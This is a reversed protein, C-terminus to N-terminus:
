QRTEPVQIGHTKRYDAPSLEKQTLPRDLKEPQYQPGLYVFTDGPNIGVAAYAEAAQPDMRDPLVYTAGVTMKDPPPVDMGRFTGIQSAATKIFDDM